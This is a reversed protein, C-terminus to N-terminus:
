NKPLANGCRNDGASSLVVRHAVVFAVMLSINGLLNINEGRMEKNQRSWWPGIKTIKIANFLMHKRKQRWIKTVGPSSTPWYM